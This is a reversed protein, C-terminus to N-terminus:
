GLGLRDLDDEEFGLHHGIEHLVTIRIQAKLEDPDPFDRELPDRYIVIRDPLSFGDGGSRVTLPTGEYHGYVQDTAELGESASPGAAVVVAVNDLRDQVSPPLSALAETVTRQFRHMRVRERPSQTRRLM